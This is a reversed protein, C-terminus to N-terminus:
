SKLWGSLDVTNGMAEWAKSISDIIGDYKADGSARFHACQEFVAQKHPGDVMKIQGGKVRLMWPLARIQKKEKSEIGYIPHGFLEPDRKLDDVIASQGGNTEFVELVGPDDSKITRKERDKTEHWPAVWSNADCLFVEQGVRVLLANASDDSGSTGTYAIDHGRVRKSVLGEPLRPIVQWDDPALMIDGRPTPNCMFMTEFEIPSMADLGVQSRYFDVSKLLPKGSFYDDGKYDVFAPFILKLWKNEKDENLLMGILDNEHWRTAIIIIRSRESQLRTCLVTRYWSEVNKRVTESNAEKANAYYDDIIAIDLPTGTLMGGIGTATYSGHRGKIQWHGKSCDRQDLELGFLSSHRVNQFYNMARYSHREALESSYSSIGINLDPNNGIKWVPYFVSALSSKYHQPPVSIILRTISDDMLASAIQRHFPAWSYAPELYQSTRLLDGFIIGKSIGIRDLTLTKAM